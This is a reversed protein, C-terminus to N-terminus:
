GQEQRWSDDGAPWKTPPANVGQGYSLIFARFDSLTQQAFRCKHGRGVKLVELYAPLQPGMSGFYYFRRSVLVNLGSLDSAKKKLNEEDGNSHTSRLQRFEGNALPRYINDGAKCVVRGDSYNPIKRKFRRDRFYSAYDLVEDVEMAYVVRNGMAKPSLGVVWDGVNATLRILPKCDALTCCGWFPNPSFGTDHTIVYSFLKM